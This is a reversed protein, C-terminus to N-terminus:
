WDLDMARHAVGEEIHEWEMYADVLEFACELENETLCESWDEGSEDIAAALEWSGEDIEDGAELTLPIQIGARNIVLTLSPRTRM